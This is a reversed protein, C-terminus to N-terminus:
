RSIATDVSMSLSADLLVWRAPPGGVSGSPLRADFLLVLVTILATARVLALRRAASVGLDVKLYIWFSYATVGGALALFLLWRIM